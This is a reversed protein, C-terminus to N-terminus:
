EAKARIIVETETGNTIQFVVPDFEGLHSWGNATYKGAILPFRTGSTRQRSRRGGAAAINVRADDMASGDPNQYRVTVWGVPMTYDFTQEAETTVTIEADAFPNLADPMRLSYTGPLVERGNNSHVVYKRENDQWLETHRRVRIDSGEPFVRFYVHVTKQVNYVLEHHQGTKIELTETLDNERGLQIHFDYTGEDIYVLDRSRFSLVQADNQLGYVIGTRPGAFEGEVRVKVSPPRVVTVDIKTDGTRGVEIEVSVPHYINGNETKVGIQLIYRGSPVPFRGNSSVQIPDGGSEPVITGEARMTDGKEDVANIRLAGAIPDNEPEPDATPTTAEPAPAPPPPPPTTEATQQIDRLSSGLDGASNADHYETGAADAICQMAARAEEELGLGVVHVRVSVDRNRWERVLACPDADCTEIGDSILIIEGSREGFDKLAETLSLTIPTKGHPVVNSVIDTMSRAVNSPSGFPVALETDTCSSRSRHGYLRLALDHNSFEGSLFNALVERAVEYKRSKDPLEGWMSNSVDVIIYIGPHNEQALTPSGGLALLLFTLIMHFHKM